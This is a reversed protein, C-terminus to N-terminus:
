ETGLFALISAQFEELKRDLTEQKKISRLWPYVAVGCGPFYREVYDSYRTKSGRQIPRDNQFVFLPDLDENCRVARRLLSRKDAPWFGKVEIYRGRPGAAEPLDDIYLDPTYTRQQRIDTSGCEVCEGRIIKSTYSFSDGEGCKRVNYGLLRLGDYVRYEFESAWENGDPDKWRRDAM